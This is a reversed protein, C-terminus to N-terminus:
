KGAVKGKEEVVTSGNENDYVKYGDFLPKLAEFVERNNSRYVSNKPRNSRTAESPLFRGGVGEDDDGYRILGGEWRKRAQAASKDISVDVFVASIDDYGYDRMLALRKDRVSGVSSMTIDWVINKREQYARDALRLAIMSAEEHALPSLEMPTLKKDLRPIMGRRAMAEKVDDPNITFYQSDDINLANKLTYGKGAGGLGGAFVAKGENPVKAARDNWIDDMLKQQQKERSPSYQGNKTKFLHQTDIAEPENDMWGQLRKDVYEARESFDYIPKGDKEQEAKWDKDSMGATRKAVYTQGTDRVGFMNGTGSGSDSTGGKFLGGGSGGPGTTFKGDEPDHYPNGRVITM